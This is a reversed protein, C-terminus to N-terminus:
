LPIRPNHKRSPCTKPVKIKGSFFQLHGWRGFVHSAQLIDMHVLLLRHEAAAREARRQLTVPTDHVPLNEWCLSFDM